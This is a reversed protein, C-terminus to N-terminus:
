STFLMRLAAHSLASLTHAVTLELMMLSGFPMIVTVRIRHVYTHMGARELRDQPNVTAGGASICTVTAAFLVRRIAAARGGAESYYLLEHQQLTPSCSPSAAAHSSLPCGRAPWCMESRVCPGSRPQIPWCRPHQDAATARVEQDTTHLQM